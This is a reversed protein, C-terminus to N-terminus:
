AAFIDAGFNINLGSYVFGGRLKDLDEDTVLVPLDAAAPPDAQAAHSFCLLTATVASLCKTLRTM